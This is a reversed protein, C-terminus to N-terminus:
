ENLYKEISKIFETIDRKKLENDFLTRYSKTDTNLCRSMTDYLDEVNDTECTFVGDIDEIGGACKTSVVKTNQSMMQLLVNPFGEIRSSIVCLEAEKFAPYVNSAFGLLFVKNQLELDLILKELASRELGEGLIILNLDKREDSINKFAKILIDFGKEPILRGASVIYPRKLTLPNLEKAQQIMNNLDVPNPITRIKIKKDLWPLANVLQDKMYETQCILLNVRSYGLNYQAKFMKLKLGSFRKFISTSERGILYDVRILRLKCLIGVLATCHVHSTFAYNYNINKNKFINRILKPFGSRENSSDTYHLSLEKFHLRLDEWANTNKRKFFFVHVSDGNKLFETATIKLYQEAGGLVDNPIIILINM